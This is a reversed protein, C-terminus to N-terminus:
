RSHTMSGSSGIRKRGANVLKGFRSRREESPTPSLSASMANPVVLLETQAGGSPREGDKVVVPPDGDASPTADTAGGSKSAQVPNTTDSTDGVGIKREWWGERRNKYIRLVTGELECTVRRWKRDRAQIGPGTFEMKRPITQRM